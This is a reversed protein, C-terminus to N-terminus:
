WIACSGRLRSAWLAGPKPDNSRPQRSHGIRKLLPLMTPVFSVTTNRTATRLDEVSRVVTPLRLTSAAASVAAAPAPAPANM